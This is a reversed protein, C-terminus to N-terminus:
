GSEQIGMTTDEIETVNQARSLRKKKSNAHSPALWPFYKLSSESRDGYDYCIEEGIKIDDKAVFILHPVSNLALIKTILNGNSSHNILRGLKGSDSTADISFYNM